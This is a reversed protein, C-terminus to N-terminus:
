HSLMRCLAVFRAVFREVTRCFPRSLSLSIKYACKCRKTGRDYQATNRRVTGRVYQVNENVHHNSFLSKLVWIAFLSKM